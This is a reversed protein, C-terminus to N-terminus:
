SLGKLYDTHFSDSYLTIKGQVRNSRLLSWDDGALAVSLKDRLEQANM